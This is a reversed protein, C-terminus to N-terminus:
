VNIYKTLTGHQKKKLFKYLPSANNGNVDIKDFFDFQAGKNAAFEKIQQNTGPEQM